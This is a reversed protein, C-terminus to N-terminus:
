LLVMFHTEIASSLLDNGLVTGHGESSLLDHLRLLFIPSTLLMQKKLSQLNIGYVSVGPTGFNGGFDFRPRSFNILSSELLYGFHSEPAM